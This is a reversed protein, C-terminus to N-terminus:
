GSPTRCVLPLFLQQRGGTQVAVPGHFEVGQRTVVELWYLYTTAPAATLDHFTYAAGAMEGVAQAPILEANLRVKQGAPSVARYLNFGVIELEHATEWTLAVANGTPVASFEAVEVATAEAPYVNVVTALPDPANNNLNSDRASTAIEVFNILPGAFTASITATITIFGRSGAPLDAVDWALNSGPRLTVAVGSATTTPSLLASPLFDEIVVHHATAPGTNTFTLTYTILAGAPLTDANITQSVQVDAPLVNLSTAPDGFLLYTDIQDRYWITRTYLYLKGQLTAPGLRILDDYFFAQFLGRNLYDHAAATGMGTASWVAVAGANPARVFGEATSSFDSTPTSPYIYYGDWCAMVVVFPLRGANNLSAVDTRRFLQESAWSSSSGHGIYNVILQGSNIAGIIASRAASVTTHTRGYYIKQATYPAPTYGNAIADSYAYFDGAADPNDSVFLVNQNWNGPAPNQEYAIIKNIVAQAEARTKVPLRGLHMDPFNDAGSVCVYRNDAAVEGLWPDVDALFPPIYNPEGRGTYNKFDYNGDGVLLVYAPAPPTWNAYVYALFNQIAVPDFIGANFEDYIDQVDVVLTRLGQAARYAALPLVDTYFNGHTIIVYDAGNTTARLDPLEVAAIGLVRRFQTPTTMIYRHTRELTQEFRATYFDGDAEVTLNAIRVPLTPTTIDFTQVTATTFGTVAYEWTGAADGSFTLSDGTATYARDYEIEFRNVFVYDTTIGMDMPIYVTITNVGTLLWDSAVNATFAYEGQAPWTAEAIRRGNLLIQTHHQPVADYGELLGRVTVSLPGTVPAELTTTYHSSTPSKALIANWYWRDNDTGSPRASQYIKNRELRQTARFSSPTVGSGTPTGDLEAMRLGPTGGWTLWYVNVDTYITNVKEGYFIIREEPDFVGDEEGPVYLAVEQGQTHLAFTRPDLDAVPVGAAALEAYTVAYLGNENVLLKYQPQPSSTLAHRQLTITTRSPSPERWSRSTADNLVLQAWLPEFPDAPQASAPSAAADAIEGAHNFIVQVRIKRYHKVVGTAPNYQFPYFRVQAVRRDRILGTEAIEAIAAPYFSATAYVTADPIAVEGRFVPIGQPDIEYLPQAAPCLTHKGPLPVAEADLMTLTAEAYPPLGVWAGVLPLRPWGARDMAGDDAVSLMECPGNASTAPRLEFDPTELELIVGQATAEILKVPSHILSEEQLTFLSETLAAQEGSVPGTAAASQAFAAKPWLLTLLAIGLLAKRFMKVM